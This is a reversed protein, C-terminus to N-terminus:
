NKSELKNLFACLLTYIYSGLLDFGNIFVIKDLLHLFSNFINKDNFSIIKKMLKLADDDNVVRNLAVFDYWPIGRKTPIGKEEYEKINKISIGLLKCFDKKNLELKKRFILIEGNIFVGSM